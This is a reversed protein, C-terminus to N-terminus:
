IKHEVSFSFDCQNPVVHPHSHASLIKKKKQSVLTFEGKLPHFTVPSIHLAQLAAGQVRNGMLQKSQECVSSPRPAQTQVKLM